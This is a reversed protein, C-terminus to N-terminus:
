GKDGKKGKIEWPAAIIPFSLLQEVSAANGDTDIMRKMDAVNPDDYTFAMGDQFGTFLQNYSFTSGAEPEIPPRPGPENIKDLNYKKTSGGPLNPLPPIPGVGTPMGPANPSVLEIGGNM